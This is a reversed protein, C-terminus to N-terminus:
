FLADHTRAKFFVLYQPPNETADKKLAFTM